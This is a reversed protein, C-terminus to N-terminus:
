GDIWSKFTKPSVLNLWITRNKDLMAYTLDNEKIDLAEQQGKQIFGVGQDTSVCFQELDPRNRFRVFAKWVTGNWAPKKGNVEYQERQKFETDPNCDHLLICGGENIVELANEVDKTVQHDLHLGDIFVMDFKEKNDNFFDDSTMRHMTDRGEVLKVTRPDPDVAVRKNAKIKNFNSPTDRVGIELYSKYGRVKIIDNIIDTRKMKM